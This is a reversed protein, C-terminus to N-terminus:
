LAENPDPGTVTNITGATNIKRIRNNMYDAIYLNGGADARSVFPNSISADVSPGGDGSFGESTTGAIIHINQAPVIASYLLLSVLLLICTRLM